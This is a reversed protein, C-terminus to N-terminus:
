AESREPMFAVQPTSIPKQGDIYRDYWLQFVLLTWLLKRNDRRRAVHDDLLRRAYGPNFLGQAKLRSESLMDQTLNRLEGTLWYAVPMNFGKKPRNIINGPLHPAMSKKLIYKGTLRHLKLELPLRTAFNVVERNLFPVRVELSAAMSARDVKYLIDGELYLKMDNYLIQNLPLRADCKDTHRYAETYTDRLIPKLWDQLLGSKEEDTFSGLWRHHRVELPVGRGALFRRIRFDMSINNFSVPMFDLAKPLLTSRIGRPVVREYYEILRHAALTPYGAFLEDGGDGGLVVKVQERAFKSLLFTPILSSDGFPEDLFDTITPVMEAAMKSTLILENHKTGVHNAVQRAYGSEDFSAEEFGISFSQVQGPYLQAMLAAITSSDLGGSLLVGVPVDSVLEREVSSKLTDFLGSAYDRWHVPPYSESSAMRINWYPETQLGDVNYRLVHGPELRYINRLITRPAPVYEFSLYENLSILDIDREVQPHALLAKMESGFILRGPLETYYLPKIGMRDRAIIVERGRSDWIAFAFIGDLHQVCETGFEEYLHLIVETDAQTRFTHGRHQLYTRLERYNYIEGNFVIWMSEDENTIPQQGGALDIISLRRSGLGAWTDLYVGQDDPGRHSLSETM